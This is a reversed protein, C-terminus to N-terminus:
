GALEAIRELSTVVVSRSARDVTCTVAFGEVELRCLEQAREGVPAEFVRSALEALRREM